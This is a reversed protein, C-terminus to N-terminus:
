SAAQSIRNSDLKAADVVPGTITGVYKPSCDFEGLTTPEAQVFNTGKLNILMGCSPPINNGPDTDAHLGGAAWEHVNKLDATVCDKTLTSGCSQAATAWLLFSSVGQAGLLGTKGGAAAVLDLYQKTAPNRDAQEFPTFAMRIYANDGNGSTNWKAFSSDYFNADLYWKPSYGIAKAADLVNEFNPAPSGSFFVVEAGCDKLRQLFPTWNSEGGINYVQECDLFNWGAAPFAIKAKDTSDKTAAYNATFVAAKKVQEPFLQAMQYAGALPTMDVPNPVGQYMDKGNAFAPSVSFSPSSALGCALRTQEQTSDLSWGQGVLMFQTDCAETMRNNAEMIAADYYTGVVKRGNIGGQDNCWNIIAKMADGIEKNLGPAASYGADDGYGIAITSDTVGKATAGNADGTGCPSALDGFM